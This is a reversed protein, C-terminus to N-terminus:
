LQDFDKKLRRTFSFDLNFTLFTIWYKPIQHGSATLSLFWSNFHQSLIWSDKELTAKQVTLWVKHLVKMFGLINSQILLQETVSGVCKIWKQMGESNSFSCSSESIKEWFTQTLFQSFESGLKM